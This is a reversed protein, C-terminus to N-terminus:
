ALSSFFSFAYVSSSDVSDLTDPVAAFGIIGARASIRRLCACHL